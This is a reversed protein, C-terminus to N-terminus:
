DPSFCLAIKETDNNDEKCENLAGQMQGDDDVSAWTVGNVQEIDSEFCVQESGGPPIQGQTMVTGMLGLMQEYFSVNVGPGVGLCGLNAVTVCIKTKPCVDPDYGIDLLQLDPACFDGSGQANRRYSNYPKDMPVLWSLEEILPIEGLLGVNTIHYAHENWVARTAVWNDSRDGWVEIGADTKFGTDNNTSFVIEAKFDGDVDAIVPYETRTRSSNKDKLLVETDDMIGDCKPGKPNLQCDPEVGPYIRIYVEDNYVVENRGDGDFDFVSSGTVQSSGDQTVAEWHKTLTNNQGDFKVVIYRTSGAAAIEPIGDGDFDAINPPGGRGGGPISFQARIAGTDGNLVYIRTNAILVVEPKKDKDLDAVGCFGDPAPSTWKISGAFNNQAVTGTFKYATRGAILEPRDDGDLDAVCSIPGQANSGIGANGEYLKKGKNDWVARGFAIEPPGEGDLNAVVVSGSNATMTYPDSKWLPTGDSDFALLYKGEGEVIIEAAGDEDIDAAAPNATSDTEWAPDSITWVKAGNDGRIARLVGNTTFASGAYTNFIIEPVCDADLDTVIPISSVQYHNPMDDPGPEIHPWTVACKGNTCAEGLQCQSDDACNFVGRKGWTFEPKPTINGIQPVYSCDFDAQTPLCLGLDVDCVFGDDCDGHEITACVEQSCPPGPIVCEGLHCLENGGCCVQMDGCPLEGNGCDKVCQGDTCLQDPACCEIGCVLNPDCADTDTGTITVQGTTATDTASASTGTETASASTMTGASTTADTNSGMTASVSGSGSDTTTGSNSNSNSNSNSDSNSDTGSGATSSASDSGSATDDGNCASM